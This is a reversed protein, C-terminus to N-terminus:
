LAAGALERAGSRMEPVERCRHVRTSEVSRRATGACRRAGDRSQEVTSRAPRATANDVWMLASPSPHPESAARARRRVPAPMSDADDVRRRPRGGELEQEAAATSSRSAPPAAASAPTSTITTRRCRRRAAARRASRHPARAPPAWARSRGDRALRRAAPDSRHEGVRGRARGALQHVIQRDGRAPRTVGSRSRATCPMRVSVPPNRKLLVSGASGRSRRRDGRREADIRLLHVAADIGRDRESPQLEQPIRQLRELDVRSYAM